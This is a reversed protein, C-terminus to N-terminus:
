KFFKFINLAGPIITFILCSFQSDTLSSLCLQFKGLYAPQTVVISGTPQFFDEKIKINKDKLIIETSGTEFATVMSAEVDLRCVKPDNVNFYYQDSPM